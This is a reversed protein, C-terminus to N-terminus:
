RENDAVLQFTLNNDKINNANVVFAEVKLSEAADGLV